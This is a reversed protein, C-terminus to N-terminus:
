ARVGLGAADLEEDSAFARMVREEQDLVSQRAKEIGGSQRVDLVHLYLMGTLRHAEVVLSGPVLSTLEAVMTLYLDSHSRLQVGIVAGHPVYRPRLAILSVEFSARVLDIGFRTFLRVVGLPRLRGHFDIPAMRLGATVGLAILVGSLVNGVSLDGWLFVWVVTLWVVTAWQTRWRHRRPHLSM